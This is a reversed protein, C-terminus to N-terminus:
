EYLLYKERDKKFQTEDKKWAAIIDRAPVGKALRNRIGTGGCLKD